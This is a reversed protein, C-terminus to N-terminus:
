VGHRSRSDPRKKLAPHLVTFCIAGRPSSDHFKYLSGWNVEQSLLTKEWPGARHLPFQRNTTRATHELPCLGIKEGSKKGWTLYPLFSHGFIAIDRSKLKKWLDVRLTLLRSPRTMPYACTSLLITGRLVVRSLLTEWGPVIHGWSIQLPVCLSVDYVSPM